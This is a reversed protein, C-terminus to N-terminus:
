AAGGKGAQQVLEKITDMAVAQIDRDEPIVTHDPAQYVSEVLWFFVGGGTVDTDYSREGTKRNKKGLKVVTADAEVLAFAKVQGGVRHFALKLNNFEGATKGYAEARAPITLYKKGPGPHIEGGVLRQRVGQQNVNILVGNEFARWNTSKAARPWFNTTPWGQKNSPANRFHNQFLLVEAEGVSAAIQKANLVGQLATIAPTATDTVTVIASIAMIFIFNM